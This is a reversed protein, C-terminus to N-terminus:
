SINTGEAEANAIKEMAADALEDIVLSFDPFVYEMKIDPYRKQQAEVAAPIDILTHSSRDFFGSGGVFLIRKAGNGAMQETIDGISPRAFEMSAAELMEFGGIERVMGALKMGDFYLPDNEETRPMQCMMKSLMAVHKESEDMSLANAKIYEPPVDGHAVLVVGYGDQKWAHDDHQYVPAAEGLGYLIKKLLGYTVGKTIGPRAYVMKIGSHKAAVAGLAKPVDVLSHSSRMLIGPCNVFIIKKIGRAELQVVSEEITPRCFDLYGIELDHVGRARLASALKETDEVFPDPWKSRDIQRADESLKELIGEVFEYLKPEKVHFDSPFDGHQVLVIGTDAHDHSM